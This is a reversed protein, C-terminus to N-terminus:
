ILSEFYDVYPRYINMDDIINKKKIGFFNPSRESRQQMLATEIFDDKHHAMM